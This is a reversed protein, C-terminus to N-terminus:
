TLKVWAHWGGKPDYVRVFLGDPCMYTQRVQKLPASSSASTDFEVAVVELTFLWTTLLSAQPTNLVNPTSGGAPESSYVGDTMIDNLDYFSSNPIISSKM